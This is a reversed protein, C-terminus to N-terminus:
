PAAALQREVLRRYLGDEAMLAQHPGAQVIRGGDLVVVRDASMVTSLRHAIVLVTRGIMLRDLAQQVVHESEADLASTAEDLILVRPDKLVARAIAVRQKQGGSLQVGREGVLTDFGEPFRLVFDHANAARAAEAIEDTSAAEHGYRINDTVSSSFLLPEQSVVGIQRRLWDPELERLDVGDLTIRGREPDYLRGILQAITSKGAGSPGVVAVVEGPALTLDLEKLVTVDKRSPYAFTVHEFAIAGEVKELRRGTAAMAPVRDILEFVREAAGGARMFDAYLEGLGSLSFAVTLTYLVFSTLDGVSMRGDLVLRGGYWLVVAIAAFGAFTAAGLFTAQIIARRRAIAFSHQIATAYRASELREATFSRVTRVGAISEEAVQNASALADQVDRSLRRIRRSAWVAGLAVPPVVSLMLLTLVPSTVLLLAIGGVSGAANRLAMSVNAAVTNQLVATDAQLRSTLEGTRRADFFAIEQRLIAAHLEARLRAVVREGTISFLAFRGAMALGQIAFVVVMVLAARDIIARDGHRMAGDLIRKIAQPYVLQMAAGVLLAITGLALNKWEPRALGALRKLDLRAV